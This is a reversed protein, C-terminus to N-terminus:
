YSVFNMGAVDVFGEQYVPGTKGIQLTNNFYAKYVQLGQEATQISYFCNSIWESGNITGSKLNCQFRTTIKEKWYEKDGFLIMPTPAMAGTKRRVEELTQEFDTGIGGMLFIPFDLHFEAQREVLKDLRFTMKAEIYPNQKQENVVGGSRPRFDVINACSLIGLEKALKNGVEM